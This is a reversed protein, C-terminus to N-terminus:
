RIGHYCRNLEEFATRGLQDQLPDIWMIDRLGARAEEWTMDEGNVTDEWRQVMWREDEIDFVSVAGVILIWRMLERFGHGENIPVAVFSKRLCDALYPYKARIGPTQFTTILFALLTLRVCESLTDELCGHLQLLRYQFSCVATHYGETSLRQGTGHAANILSSYHRMEVFIPVIQPDSLGYESLDSQM